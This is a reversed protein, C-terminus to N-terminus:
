YPFQGLIHLFNGSNRASFFAYFGTVDRATMNKKNKRFKVCKSIVEFNLLDQIVNVSVSKFQKPISTRSRLPHTETDGGRRAEMGRRQKDKILQPEMASKFTKPIQENRSSASVSVSKKKQRGHKEIIADMNM